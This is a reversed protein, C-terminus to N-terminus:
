HGLLLLAKAHEIDEPAGYLVLVDDASLIMDPHPRAARKRRKKVATIQVGMESLQLEGLRRGVVRATPPLKVSHLSKRQLLNQEVGDPLTGRFFSRLILYRDARVEKLRQEIVSPHVQLLHLLHAVLALSSELKEPVVETAGKELYEEFHADDSTRVLIPLDTRIERAHELIKDTSNAEEFAIVLVRADKINAVELIERHTSDGYSVKEGAARAEQIVHPDVDLALYPINELELFRAINQGVRGYGCIIVHQHINRAQHAIEAHFQRRRGLYSKSLIKKTFVGNYRIIFPTLLMSIVIAALLPQGLAPDLMNDKLALTIIAFGFEGGQALVIGTRLAVGIEHRFALCLMVILACKVLVLGVVLALVALWSHQLLSWDLLMGVTIFFLGLLIDRFPRINAEIQHRFETENLLVGALFAGLAASLDLRNTIWAATLIVLLVTLMFLETSRASAVERFLPRLWWHGVALLVVFALIGKCLAVFLPWFLTEGANHSLWPLIILLPVVALDQFILIAFANRGHRSNIELQESLQKVVIATSSMALVSGAILADTGSYGVALTVGAAILASLLVQLGGLGLVATRMSLLQPLSFELGVTFMLFVVGFEALHRLQSSQQQLGPYFAGVLVGVVIYGLIPPLHLRRLLAVAAVSLALLILIVDLTNQM